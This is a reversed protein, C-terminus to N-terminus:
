VSFLTTLIRLRFFCKLPFCTERKLFPGFGRRWFRNKNFWNIKLLPLIKQQNIAKNYQHIKLEREKMKLGNDIKQLTTLVSSEKAGASEISKNHKDLQAKLKDLETKELAIQVQIDKITDASGPGSLVLVVLALSFPLYWNKKFLFRM